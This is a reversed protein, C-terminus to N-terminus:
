DLIFGCRYTLDGSRVSERRGRLDMLLKGLVNQGGLVGPSVERCGWFTDRNSVEVIPRDGTSDLSERFTRHTRYKLELVWLMSHIRLELDPDEWEWRVLAVACKQTMKAGRPTSQQQIRKRVNPSGKTGDKWTKPVCEVDPGFKSAQYLQESSNWLFGGNVVPFRIPLQGAMNSFVWNPDEKGFFWACTTKDYTAETKLAKTDLHSTLIADHQETETSM